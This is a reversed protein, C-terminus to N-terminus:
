VTGGDMCHAVVANKFSFLSLPLPPPLVDSHKMVLDLKHQPGNPSYDSVSNGGSGGTLLRPAMWIDRECMTETHLVCYFANRPEDKM